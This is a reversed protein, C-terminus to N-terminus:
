ARRVFRFLSKEYDLAYSAGNAFILIFLWLHGSFSIDSFNSVWYTAMIVFSNLEYKNLVGGFKM